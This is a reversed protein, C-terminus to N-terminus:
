ATSNSTIQSGTYVKKRVPLLFELWQMIIDEHLVIKTSFYWFILTYLKCIQTHTHTPVSSSYIYMNGAREIPSASINAIIDTEVKLIAMIRYVDKMRITIIQWLKNINLNLNMTKINIWLKEVSMIALIEALGISRAPINTIINTSAKLVSTITKIQSKM